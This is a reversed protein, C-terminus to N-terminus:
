ESISNMSKLFHVNIQYIDGLHFKFSIPITVYFNFVLKKMSLAEKYFYFRPIIIARSSVQFVIICEIM